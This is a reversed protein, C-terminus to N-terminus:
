GAPQLVDTELVKGDFPLQKTEERPVFFQSYWKRLRMLPGDGDCLIPKEVFKKELWIDVDEQFGKSLNEIYGKQFAVTQRLDNGKKLMVGFRLIMKNTDIMTNANILRAEMFGNWKSIQFGPGYYTAEISYNDIGGGLPYAVGENRQIAMHGKFENEFKEVQTRHVPSFHGIDVVNEVLEHPHTEIELQAYEWTTWHEDESEPLLPIEFDPEGGAPDHWLYIIHNVEQILWTNIVAKPPISSAYPIHNCKGDPGFRWAHFPCEISNGIVKGKVLGGGLHPCYADMARVIRDEGRYLVLTQGFCTIKKIDGVDLEESFALVFWGRPYGNFLHQRKELNRGM